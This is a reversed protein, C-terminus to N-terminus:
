WLLDQIIREPNLGKSEFAERMSVLGQVASFFVPTENEKLVDSHEIKMGFYTTGIIAPTDDIVGAIKWREIFDKKSFLMTTLQGAGWFYFPVQKAPFLVVDHFEGQLLATPLTEIKGTHSGSWRQWILEDLYVHHVKMKRLRSHLYIACELMEKSLWEEKFDGSIQFFSDTLGYKLIEECFGDVQGVTSNQRTFIYKITIRRSNSKSYESLNALAKEFGKRGRVLTYTLNDGADISTVLQATKNTLMEAVKSSYRLSNSLVRHQAKPANIRLRELMEDFKPDLFPEGGGWVVMKCDTLSGSDSLSKVTKEINYVPKAGGFYTEDCYTCRLNCVSHQEMSILDLKMEKELNDWEKFEMFPCQDCATSNGSNIDVWLNRKAERINDVTIAEDLKLEIDLKVDGQIEGDVFFRKCCTRVEGPAFFVSKHLDKCSWSKGELELIQTILSEYGKASGLTFLAWIKGFNTYNPLTTEVVASLSDNKSLLQQLHEFLEKASKEDHSMLRAVERIRSVFASKLGINIDDKHDSGCENCKFLELEKAIMSYNTLYGDIHKKTITATVSKPNKSKMYLVSDLYIVEEAHFYSSFIFYIDEHLGNPFRIQHKALFDKRFASFIVSGEMQRRSFHKVRDCRSKLFRVDKPNLKTSAAVNDYEWNFNLVDAKPNHIIELAIKTLSTEILFDDVDLFLIWDNKAKALGANRAAGPGLNEAVVVVEYDFNKNESNLIQSSDAFEQGSQVFIVEFDLYDSRLLNLKNVCRSLYEQENQFPVIISFSVNSKTM